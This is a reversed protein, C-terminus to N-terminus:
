TTKKAYNAYGRSTQIIVRGNKVVTITGSFGKQKVLQNITQKITNTSAAQAQGWCSFGVVLFILIFLAFKKKM